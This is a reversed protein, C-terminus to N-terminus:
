VTNKNIFDILRRLAGYDNREFPFVLRPYSLLEPENSEDPLADSAVIKGKRTLEPFDANMAKVVKASLPKKMRIVLNDKVFRMSHYNKYFEDIHDLAEKPSHSVTFLHFDTKSIFGKKVLVDNLLKLIPEWFGFGKPELMVVPILSTKGTQLLTLVEFAEDFTGLGGPFFTFAAAEKVLFLKRTFFYKYHILMKKEDIFANASQEVPLRINLGFGAEMKAGENGAAMIGPGGGTIVLYGRKVSEAAFDRAFAYLPADPPVRASGFMTIKPTFRHPYFMKFSYRLEKLVTSCIKLNLTGPSEQALKVTSKFIENLLKLRNPKQQAAIQHFLKEIAEWEQSPSIEPSKSDTKM